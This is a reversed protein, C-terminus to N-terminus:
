GLGNNSLLDALGRRSPSTKGTGPLDCYAAEVTVTSDAPRINFLIIAGAEIATLFYLLNSMVLEQHGHHGSFCEPNRHFAGTTPVRALLDRWRRRSVASARPHQEMAEALPPRMGPANIPIAAAPRLYLNDVMPVHPYIERLATQVASVDTCGVPGGMRDHMIRMDHQARDNFVDALRRAEDRELALGPLNAPQPAQYTIVQLRRAGAPVPPPEAPEAQPGQPRDRDRRLHAAALVGGEDPRPDRPVRDWVQRRRSDEGLRADLRSVVRSGHRELRPASRRSHHSSSAAPSPSRRRRRQGSAEHGGDPSRSNRRSRALSSAHRDASDRRNRPSRTRSRPSSAQDRPPPAAGSPAAAAAGAPAVAVAAAAAAGPPANLPQPQRGLLPGQLLPSGEVVYYGETFLNADNAGEIPDGTGHGALQAQQMQYKYLLEPLAVALVDHPRETYLWLALRPLHDTRLQNHTRNQAPLPNVQLAITYQNLVAAALYPPLAPKLTTQFTAAVIAQAAVPIPLTGLYPREPPITQPLSPALLRANPNAM